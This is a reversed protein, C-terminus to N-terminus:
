DNNAYYIIAAGGPGGHTSISASTLTTPIELDPYIKSLREKLANALEPNDVHPINIAYMNKYKQMNEIVGDYFSDVTKQGRGRAVQETKGKSVELGVKFNLAMGITGALKPVRGGAILFKLSDISCFLYVDQRMKNLMEAVEDIEKGEAAAQGAALVLLAISRDVSLSDIVEIQNDRMKAAQNAANVTGSFNTGIHISLIPQDYKAYTEEIRGISPQATKPMNNTGATVMADIFDKSSIESGEDYNKGDIIVNIPIVEIDYKKIEDATLSAASDTVIKFKAM